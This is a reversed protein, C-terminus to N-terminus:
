GLSQAFLVDMPHFGRFNTCTRAASFFFKKQRQQDLLHRIPTLSFSSLQGVMQSCFVRSQYSKAELNISISCFCNLIYSVPLIESSWGSWLVAFCCGCRRAVLRIQNLEQYDYQGDFWIWRRQGDDQNPDSWGNQFVLTQFYLILQKCVSKLFPFSLFFPFAGMEPFVLM